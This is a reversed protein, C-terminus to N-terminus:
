EIIALIDRPEILKFFRHDAKIDEGRDREILIRDGVSVEYEGSTGLEVVVCEISHQRERHADPIFVGRVIDQTTKVPEVLLRKKHPRIRM